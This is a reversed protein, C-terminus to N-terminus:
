KIRAIRVARTQMDRRIQQLQAILDLTDIFHSNGEFGTLHDVSKRLQSAAGTANGRGLHYLGVAAQILGQYFTREPGATARWLDEWVEHAQYYRGANFFIFGKEFLDHNLM